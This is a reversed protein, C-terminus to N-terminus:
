PAGNELARRAAHLSGLARVAAASGPPEIQIIDACRRASELIAGIAELAIEGAPKENTKITDNM